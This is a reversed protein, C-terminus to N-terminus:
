EVTFFVETQSDPIQFYALVVCCCPYRSVSSKIYKAMVPDKLSIVSSLNFARNSLIFVHLNNAKHSLLLISTILLESQEGIANACFLSLWWLDKGM